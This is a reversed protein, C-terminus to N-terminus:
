AQDPKPWSFRVETGTEMGGSTLSIEGGQREIIKKAIALGAGSGERKDRPQLTRLMEFVATQYQLDIGPGDDSITIEYHEPRDILTLRIKGQDRHHHKVANSILQTLAHRLSVGDTNLQSVANTVELEFSESYPVEALIEQSLARIDTPTPQNCLVCDVRSFELLSDILNEMRQVRASLLKLNEQVDSNPQEIDEELWSVLQKIGRLPAILDHSAASTFVALDDTKHKLESHCHALEAELEQIRTDKNNM